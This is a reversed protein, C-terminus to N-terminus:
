RGTAADFEGRGWTALASPNEPDPECVFIEHPLRHLIRMGAARLMAEIGALNPTWWNTEDGALRKEIFAMKPWGPALMADRDLLPMDPPTEAVDTGPMTLTQFVMLRRTKRAAIDLGLMPYRLHYLVGMFWVLDYTEPERALEYLKGQRFEVRDALGMRPAAWRAQNLYHPEQDLGTVRAGRKALEYAYFGANCGIDLASWGALDAPIADRVLKWKDNPFDGYILPHEPLTQTGDPLHLNHVWPGLAAIEDQPLTM